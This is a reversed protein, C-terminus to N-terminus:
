SVTPKLPWIPLNRIVMWALAAGALSYAVPGAIEAHGSPETARWSRWGVVTLVPSCLLLFLNDHVARTLSGHLLDHTLRLGGCAPCDLGTIMKTPCRPMPAGRRHPDVVAVYTLAILAPAM